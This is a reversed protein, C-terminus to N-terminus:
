DEEKGSKKDQKEQLENLQQKLRAIEASQEEKALREKQKKSEGLVSVIKIVDLVIIAMCPLIIILVLGVPQKIAYLVNGLLASQGTVKGIVYNTSAEDSTDIVQQLAISDDSAKNDGELTIIYGGMEKKTIDVIRHTITEQRIYTYRFTLVDGVELNAYWDDAEDKEDPVLQVFVISRASIDKIEFDSVDTQDCKSMSDSLVIRIQYGFIDMASDETKNSVLTVVLSFVCLAFFLVTLTTLCISLGKKVKKNM